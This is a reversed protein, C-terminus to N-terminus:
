FISVSVRLYKKPDRRIDALLSRFETVAGNISEYLQKDRLLLGATGEGNELRAMVADMRGITGNLRDYLESETLLKGMTGQNGNMKATAQELNSFTSALNRGMAEDNLFRGLAGEGSNIKATMTQLNELAGKFNNYATPDKLFAGLTGQGRSLGETVRGASGIFATMERYLEDDSVLKGLTGKGARVDTLLQGVQELSSSATETLDGFPGGSGSVKIYSWDQLPTGRGNAKLDVIPEGLLSLSGISATTEDTILPRVSTLLEMTVEVQAGSFEVRDVTGVEKGALWVVAGPKLGQVDTFLSKVPFREAWFGAEGGIAVVLLAVLVLATVSVIGLKLESWALSRTRPM